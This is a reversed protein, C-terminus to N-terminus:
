RPNMIILINLYKNFFSAFGGKSSRRDEEASRCNEPRRDEAPRRDEVPGRDESIM